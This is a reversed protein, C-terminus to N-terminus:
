IHILSLKSISGTLHSKKQTGYGIVVVEDLVSVDERLTLSVETQNAIEVELDKYGTYSFVLVDGTNAEISYYGDLDTITGTNTGKILVNVGILPQGDDASTITGTITGFLMEESLINNNLSTDGRSFIPLFLMLCSLVGILKICHLKKTLNDVM